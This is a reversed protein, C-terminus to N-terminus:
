AVTLKELIVAAHPKTALDASFMWCVVYSKVVAFSRWNHLSQCILAQHLIVYSFHCWWDETSWPKIDFNLWPKLGNLQIRIVFFELLINLIEKQTTFM